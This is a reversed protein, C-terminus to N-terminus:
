SERRSAPYRRPEVSQNRCLDLSGPHRLPKCGRVVELSIEAHGLGALRSFASLLFSAIRELSTLDNLTALMKVIM